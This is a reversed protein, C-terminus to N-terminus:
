AAHGGSPPRREGFAHTMYYLFLTEEDTICRGYHQSCYYRNVQGLADEWRRAFDAAGGHAIFHRWLLNPDRVDGKHAISCLWRNYHGLAEAMQLRLRPPM